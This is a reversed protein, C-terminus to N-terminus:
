PNLDLAARLSSLAQGAESFHQMQLSALRAYLDARQEDSEAVLTRREVIDRLKNWNETREYLGDLDLLLEPEDGVQEVARTYADIAREADQLKDRCIRGLRALLERAVEADFTTQARESLANAYSSWDDLAECLQEIDQHLDADDPLESMARLLAALAARKDDLQRMQVDAIARLTTARVAPENEVSLRLELVHARAEHSDSS